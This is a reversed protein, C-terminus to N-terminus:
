RPEWTPLDEYAVRLTWEGPNTGRQWPLGDDVALPRETGASFARLRLEKKDAKASLLEFGAAKMASLFDFVPREDGRQRSLYKIIALNIELRQQSWKLEAVAERASCQALEAERERERRELRARNREVRIVLASTALLSLVFGAFVWRLTRRDGANM